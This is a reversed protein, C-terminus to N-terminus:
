NEKISSSRKRKAIVTEAQILCRHLGKKTWFLASGCDPCFNTQKSVKKEVGLRTTMERNDKRSPSCSESSCYAIYEKIKLIFDPLPKELYDVVQHIKM